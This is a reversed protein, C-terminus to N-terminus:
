RPLVGQRRWEELIMAGVESEDRGSEFASRAAEIMARTYVRWQDGHARLPTEPITGRQEMISIRYKSRGIARALYEVSYAEVQEGNVTVMVPAPISPVRVMDAPDLEVGTEGDEALKKWAAEIEARMADGHDFPHKGRRLGLSEYKEVAARVALIMGATYLKDGRGSELDTRPLWGKREWSYVTWRSRRIARCLIEIGYALTDAGARKVTVPRKLARVRVRPEERRAQAVREREAKARAKVREKYDPDNHYRSRRRKM